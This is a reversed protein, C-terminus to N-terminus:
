LHEYGSVRDLDAAGAGTFALRGKGELARGLRTLPVDCTAAAAEWRDAPITFLLEYDEGAAIALERPDRGAATAVEAVGPALPLAAADIELGLGSARALHRGDTALGDSLDIMATAGAQALARGAVLRPQPRRHREGLAAATQRDLSPPKVPGDSGSDASDSVGPSRPEALDVPADPRAEGGLLWLGAGSAGLDGTVGVVDAPRAGDRGVLDDEADAWGTVAVTLVLTGATVVDGGAITTGTAVALAAMAGTLELAADHSFDEPLALSVYAEGPDAGMAALHSLATALAKHGADAPSHTTLDFHVGEAVTDISTVAFPRARVVAADDGTWRVVREGPAGLAERIAEILAQEGV